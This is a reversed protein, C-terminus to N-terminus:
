SLIYGSNLYKSAALLSSEEKDTHCPVLLIEVAGNGAEKASM